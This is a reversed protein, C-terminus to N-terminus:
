NKYKNSIKAKTRWNFAKKKYKRVEMLAAVLPFYNAGNSLPGIRLHMPM